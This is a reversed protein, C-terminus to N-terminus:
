FVCVCVFVCLNTNNSRALTAASYYYSSVNYSLLSSTLLILFLLKLRFNKGSKLLVNGLNWDTRFFNRCDEWSASRGFSRRLHWCFLLLSFFCLFVFILFHWFLFIIRMELHGLFCLGM